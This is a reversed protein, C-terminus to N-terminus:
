CGANFNLIWANFDAPTCQGDGNQDCAPGQSNFALIWANFDAPSAVGDGNVDALCPQAIQIDIPVFTLASGPTNPVALVTDASDPYVFVGGAPDPNSATITITAGVTADSAIQLTVEFLTAPNDLVLSPNSGDIDAWQGGVIGVIAQDTISGVRTGRNMTTFVPTGISEVHEDGATIEFDLAFGGIAEILAAPQAEAVVTIVVEQGPAAQAPGLPSVTVGQAFAPAGALGAAITAASSFRTPTCM